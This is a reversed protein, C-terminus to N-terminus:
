LTITEMIQASVKINSNVEKDLLSIDLLGKLAKGLMILTEIKEENYFDKKSFIAKFYKLIPNVNKGFLEDAISNFDLSIENLAAELESARERIGHLTAKATNIQEVYIESTEEFATAQTLTNEAASAMVLGGIAVLPGAFLGGLVTAGLLTGGGASLSYGFAGLGTLVGAGVGDKALNKQIDLSNDLSYHLEKLANNTFYKTNNFESDASDKSTRVVDILLKIDSTFLELKRSGLQALLENTNDIDDNLLKKAGELEAKSGNVIREAMKNTAFADLSKKVGIGLLAASTLILLPLKIDNM